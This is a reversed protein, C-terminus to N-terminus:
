YIFSVTCFFNLFILYSLLEKKNNNNNSSNAPQNSPKTKTKGSLTEKHLGFYCKPPQPLFLPFNLTQSPFICYLIRFTLIYSLQSLVQKAHAFVGPEIGAM